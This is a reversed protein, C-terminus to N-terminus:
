KANREDYEQLVRHIGLVTLPSPTSRGSEWRQITPTSVHLLHAFADQTLSRATRLQKIETKVDKIYTMNVDKTLTM